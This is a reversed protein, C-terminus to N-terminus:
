CKTCASCGNQWTVFLLALKPWKALMIRGVFLCAACMKTVGGGVIGIDGRLALM